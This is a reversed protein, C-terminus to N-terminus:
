FAGDGAPCRRRSQDCGELAGASGARGAVAKRNRSYVAALPGSAAALPPRDLTQAPRGGASQQYCTSPWARLGIDLLFLLQFPTDIRWSLDTPQGSEDIGRWYNIEVLPIIQKLWFQRESDWGSAQLHPQSLLQTAAEQASDTQARSRLRNKLKELAGANGSSLFPNTEILQVTLRQQNNLMELAEATSIGNQVIVEDMAHFHDLYTETDRHPLIGKVPDYVPTIDPLWPLFLWSFSPISLQTAALFEATPRLQHRFDCCFQCSRDRRDAIGGGGAVLM